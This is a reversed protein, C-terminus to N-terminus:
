AGARLRRPGRRGRPAFRGRQEAAISLAEHAIRRRYDGDLRSFMGFAIKVTDPTPSRAAERLANRLMRLDLLGPVCARDVAEALIEISCLAAEDDPRIQM